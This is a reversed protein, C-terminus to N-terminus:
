PEEGFTVSGDRAIRAVITSAPDIRGGLWRVLATTSTPLRDEVPGDARRVASRSYRWDPSSPISAVM